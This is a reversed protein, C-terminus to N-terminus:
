GNLNHLDSSQIDLVLFFAQGEGGNDGAEVEPEWLDLEKTYLNIIFRTHISEGHTTKQSENRNSLMMNLPEDLNHRTDM